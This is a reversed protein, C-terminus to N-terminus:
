GLEDDDPAGSHVPARGGSGLYKRALQLLRNLEAPNLSTPDPPVMGLIPKVAKAMFYMTHSYDEYSDADRALSGASPVSRATTIATGTSTIAM